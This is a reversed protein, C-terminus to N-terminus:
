QNYGEKEQDVEFKGERLLVLLRRAAEQEARKRNKGEGRVTRGLAHCEITFRAEHDPGEKKVLMYTPLPEGLEQAVEQLRTKYDRDIRHLFDAIDRCGGMKPGFLREIVAFATEWGCTLFVVAMLAEFADALISDKERGSTKEEGKGLALFPGLNLARAMEALGEEDILHARARTLHGEDADPFRLFLLTSVALGVVEDGLFELRQYNATGSVDHSPHVFAQALLARDPIECGLAQELTKIDLDRDAAM